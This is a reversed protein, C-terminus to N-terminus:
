VDFHMRCKKGDHMQSNALLTSTEDSLVQLLSKVSQLSSEGDTDKLAILENRRDSPRPGTFVVLRGLTPPVAAIL